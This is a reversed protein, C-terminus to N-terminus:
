KKILDDIPIQISCIPNNAVYLPFVEINISDDRSEILVTGMGRVDVFLREDDFQDQDIHFYEM